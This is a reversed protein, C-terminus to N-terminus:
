SRALIKEFMALTTIHDIPLADDNEPKLLGSEELKALRAAFEKQAEELNGKAIIILNKDQEYPFQGVVLSPSLCLLPIAVSVLLFRRLSLAEMM